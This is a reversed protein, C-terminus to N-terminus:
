HLHRPKRGGRGNSSGGTPGRPSKSIELSQVLDDFRLAFLKDVEAVVGTLESAEFHREMMHILDQVLLDRQVQMIAAPTPGIFLVMFDDRSEGDQSEDESDFDADYFTVELASGTASLENLSMCVEDLTQRFDEAGFVTWCFQLLHEHLLFQIGPEDEFGSKSGDLLSRAGAYIWLPKLAEELHHIRVDERLTVQGHVHIEFPANYRQM